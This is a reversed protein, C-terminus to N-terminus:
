SLLKALSRKGHLCSLSSSIRMKSETLFYSFKLFYVQHLLPYFYQFSKYLIWIPYYILSVHVFQCGFCLGSSRISWLDALKCKCDRGCQRHTGSEDVCLCEGCFERRSSRTFLRRNVEKQSYDFHNRCWSIKSVQDRIVKNLTQSQNIYIWQRKAQTSFDDQM